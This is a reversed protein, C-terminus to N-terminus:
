KNEPCHDNTYKLNLITKAATECFVKGYDAGESDQQFFSEEEQVTVQWLSPDADLSSEIFTLPLAMLKLRIKERIYAADWCDKTLSLSEPYAHDGIIWFWYDTETDQDKRGGIFEILLQDQEETTM